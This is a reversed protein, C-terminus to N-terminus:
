IHFGISYVKRNGKDDYEDYSWLGGLLANLYEEYSKFSYNM